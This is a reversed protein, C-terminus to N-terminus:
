WMAIEQPNETVLRERRPGKGTALPHFPVKHRRMYQRVQDDTWDLLPDVRLLRGDVDIRSRAQPGRDLHYVASIWCDFDQLTDNLHVVEHVRGGAVMDEGWMCEFHDSDSPKVNSEQGITVELDSLVFEHILRQRYNLSEGFMSSPQCFVIPTQPRIRSVMHLVVVSKARLSATVVCRAPFRELLLHNLLREASMGETEACLEHYVSM